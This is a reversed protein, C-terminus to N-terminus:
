TYQAAIADADGKPLTVCPAFYFETDLYQGLTYDPDEGNPGQLFDYVDAEVELLASFEASWAYSQLFQRIWGRQLDACGEAHVHFTAKAQRPLNPGVITLRQTTTNTTSM